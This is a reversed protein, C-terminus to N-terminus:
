GVTVLWFIRIVYNNINLNLFLFYYFFYFSISNYVNDYTMLKM